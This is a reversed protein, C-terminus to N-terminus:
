KGTSLVTLLLTVQMFGVLRATGAPTNRLVLRHVFSLGAQLMRLTVGAQTLIESCAAAAAAM